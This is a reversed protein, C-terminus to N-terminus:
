FSTRWELPWHTGIVTGEKALRNKAVAGCFSIGRFRCGPKGYHTAQKFCSNEEAWILLSGVVDKEHTMHIRVQVLEFVQSGM